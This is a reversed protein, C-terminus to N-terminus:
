HKCQPQAPASNMAHNQPPLSPTARGSPDLGDDHRQDDVSRPMSKQRWKLSPPINDTMSDAFHVRSKPNPTTSDQSHPSLAIRNTTTATWDNGRPCPCYSVRPSYSISAKSSAFSEQRFKSWMPSWEEINVRRDASPRRVSAILHRSIIDNAARQLRVRLTATNLYEQLSAANLYLKTELRRAKHPLM